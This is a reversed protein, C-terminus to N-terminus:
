INGARFFEIRKNFKHCVAYSILGFFVGFLQLSYIIHLLQFFLLHFFYFLPVLLLFLFLFVILLSSSFVACLHVGRFLHVGTSSAWGIDFLIEFQIWCLIFQGCVPIDFYTSYITILLTQIQLKIIM